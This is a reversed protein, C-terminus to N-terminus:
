LKISKRAHSAPGMSRGQVQNSMDQLAESQQYFAKARRRHSDTFCKQTGETTKDVLGQIVKDM